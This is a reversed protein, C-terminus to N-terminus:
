SITSASAVKEQGSGSASVLLTVGSPDHETSPSAITADPAVDHPGLSSFVTATLLLDGAGRGSKTPGIFRAM